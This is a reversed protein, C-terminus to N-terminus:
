REIHQFAGGGNGIGANNMLVAVGGSLEFAAAKLREVDGLKGVDTPLAVITRNSHARLQDAERTLLEASRDAMVVNMGFAAFRKAAALGIGSAAGTVVATRGAAFAPHFTM